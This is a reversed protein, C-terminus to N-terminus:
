NKIHFDDMKPRVSKKDFDDSEYIFIYSLRQPKVTESIAEILGLVISDYINPTAHTQSLYFLEQLTTKSLVIYLKEPTRTSKAFQQSAPKFKKSYENELIWDYIEHRQIPKQNEM